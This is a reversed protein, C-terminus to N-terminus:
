HKGGKILSIIAWVKNYYDLKEINSQINKSQWDKLMGQIQSHFEMGEIQLHVDLNISIGLHNM